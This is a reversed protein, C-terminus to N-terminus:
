GRRARETQLRMLPRLALGTVVIVAYLVLLAMASAQDLRFQELGVRYLFYSVTETATGPGGKTMAAVPDYLKLLDMARLVLVLALVPSLMPFTLRRLVMFGSGGDLEAAEFPERPLSQLGALTILTVFPTWQWIDFVIISLPAVHPDGLWNIRALGLIRLLENYVGFESDYLYRWIMGVAFPAGALPLLFLARIVGQFWRVRDIQFALWVGLIMEVSLAVGAITLTRGLSQWFAQSDLSYRFNRMGVAAGIGGATLDVHHVSLYIAYGLPFLAFFLLVVLAPSVLLWPFLGETFRWGLPVRATEGADPLPSRKMPRTGEDQLSM